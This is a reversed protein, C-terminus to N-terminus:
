PQGNPQILEALFERTEEDVAYIITGALGRTLLVKYTNRILRDAQEDTVNRSLAPDKSAKRITVLKGDRYVLDPGIIVGNWDYEFGQATYVCGVQGFGGDMTAWLASAPASGFISPQRRM